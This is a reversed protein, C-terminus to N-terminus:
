VVGRIIWILHIISAISGLFIIGGIIIELISFRDSEEDNDKNEEM